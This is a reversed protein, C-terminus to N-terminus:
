EGEIVQKAAYLAEALRKGEDTLSLYKLRGKKVVNVIGEEELIKLLKVVHSYTCDIEKAVISAYIKSKSTLLLTLLNVPKDRFLIKFLNSKKKLTRGEM